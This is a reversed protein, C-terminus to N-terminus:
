SGHLITKTPVRGVNSSISNFYKAQSSMDRSLFGNYFDQASLQKRTAMTVAKFGVWGNKCRICLVKLKKNFVIQGPQPNTVAIHLGQMINPDVMHHLKVQKGKWETRLTVYDSIARYLRDIDDCEYQCWDIYSMSTTIKRAQTSGQKLQPRANTIKAPLDHLTELLMNAGLKSLVTSLQPTTCQSPVQVSRQLVIPGVDFKTSIQIISIGTVTDGSLITHYIPSAGRWRPLLSPHVNLIGYPFRNIIEPPLLHGFSVVVGVDYDISSNIDPWVSMSLNNDTAYQQIPSVINLHRGRRLAKSHSCVVTIDEVLSSSLRSQNLVKLSEVAFEDTGFFMIKWPPLSHIASN